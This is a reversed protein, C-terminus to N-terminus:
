HRFHPNQSKKGAIGGLHGNDPLVALTKRIAHRYDRAPSKGSTDFPKQRIAWLMWAPSVASVKCPTTKSM